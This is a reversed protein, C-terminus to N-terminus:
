LIYRFLLEVLYFVPMACCYFKICDQTPKTLM